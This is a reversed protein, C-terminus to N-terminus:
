HPQGRSPRALVVAGTRWLCHAPGLLTGVSALLKVDGGGTAGILYGPLMLVLGVVCGAVSLAVGVRGLGAAAIGVGILAIAGTLVNPVRRTRVDVAAAIIAAAAVVLLPLDSSM